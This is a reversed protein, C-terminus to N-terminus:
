TFQSRNFPNQSNQGISSENNQNTQNNQNEQQKFLSSITPNNNMSLNREIDACCQLCLDRDKYGICSILNDKKCRDCSVSSSNAYHDVAPYFFHGCKYIQILDQETVYSTSM